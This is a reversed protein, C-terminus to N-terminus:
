GQEQSRTLLKLTVIGSFKDFSRIKLTSGKVTIVEGVTFVPEKGKREAKEYVSTLEDRLDKSVPVFRGKGNDM